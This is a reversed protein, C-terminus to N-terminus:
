QLNINTIHAQGRWRAAGHSAMHRSIKKSLPQPTTTGSCALNLPWIQGLIGMVLVKRSPELEIKGLSVTYIIRGIKRSGM